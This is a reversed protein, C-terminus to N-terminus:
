RGFLSRLRDIINKEREDFSFLPDVFGYEKARDEAVALHLFEEYYEQETCTVQTVFVDPEHADTVGLVYVTVTIVKERPFIVPEAKLSVVVDSETASSSDPDLAGYAARLRDEIPNNSM